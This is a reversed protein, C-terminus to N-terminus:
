TTETAAQSQDPETDQEKDFELSDLYPGKVSSEYTHFSHSDSLAARQDEDSSM